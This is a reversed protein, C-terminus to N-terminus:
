IVTVHATIAPVLTEQCQQNNCSTKLCLRARWCQLIQVLKKERYIHNFTVLSNLKAYAPHSIDIVQHQCSCGCDKCDEYTNVIQKACGINLLM